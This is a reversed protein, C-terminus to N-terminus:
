RVGLNSVIAVMNLVDISYYKASHLYRSREWNQDVIAVIM